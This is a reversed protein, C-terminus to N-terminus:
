AFSQLPIAATNGAIFAGPSSLFFLRNVTVDFIGSSIFNFSQVELQLDLPGNQDAATYALFGPGIVLPLEVCTNLMLANGTDFNEGAETTQLLNNSVAIPTGAVYPTLRVAIGGNITSGPAGIGFHFAYNISITVNAFVLYSGPNPLTVKWGTVQEWTSDSAVTYYNGNSVGEIGVLPFSPPVPVWMPVRDVLQHGSMGNTIEPRAVADEGADIPDNGAGSAEDPGSLIETKMGGGRDEVVVCLVTSGVIGAADKRWGQYVRHMPANFTKQKRFWDAAREAARTALAAANTISGSVVTANMDDLLNVITGAMAGPLPATDTVDIAVYPSAGDNPAPIAVFLVRVKEPLRAFTPVGAFQDWNVKSAAALAQMVAAAAPDAVGLRVVSFTDLFPDYRIACALRALFMSIADWVTSAYFEFNQPTGDAVFPLAPVGGPESTAAWIGAWIQAWTWPTGANISLPLFAGPTQSQVNYAKDFPLRRLVWRRDVLWVALPTDADDAFSPGIAQYRRVIIKKFTLPPNDGDSFTLDNGQNLDIRDLDGKRMLVMGSGPVRGLPCRYVNAIGFWPYLPPPPDCELFSDRLAIPDRCPQGGYLIGM